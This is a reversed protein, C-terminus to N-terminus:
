GNTEIFIEFISICVVRLLSAYVWAAANCNTDELVEAVHWIYKNRRIQRWFTAGVM